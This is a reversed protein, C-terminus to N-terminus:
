RPYSTGRTSRCRARKRRVFDDVLECLEPFGAEAETRERADGFGLEALNGGCDSAFGDLDIALQNRESRFVRGADALGDAHEAGVQAVRLAERAGAGGTLEEGAEVREKGIHLAQILRNQGFQFSGGEAAEGM